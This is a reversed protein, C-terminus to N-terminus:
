QVQLRKEDIPQGMLARHELFWSGASASSTEVGALSSDHKIVSAPHNQSTALPKSTFFLVDSRSNQHNAALRREIEKRRAHREDITLMKLTGALGLCFIVLVAHLGVKESFYGISDIPYKEEDNAVYDEYSVMAAALFALSSPSARM